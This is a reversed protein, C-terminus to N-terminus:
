AVQVNRKTVDAFRKILCMCVYVLNKFRKTCAAMRLRFIAYTFIM